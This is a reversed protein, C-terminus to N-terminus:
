ISVLRFFDTMYKYLDRFPLTGTHYRCCGCEEYEWFYQDHTNDVAVDYRYGCRKCVAFPKRTEDKTSVPKPPVNETDHGTLDVLKPPVNEADDGTLDIIGASQAAIASTTDPKTVMVDMWSPSQAKSASTTIEVATAVLNPLKRFEQWKDDVTEANKIAKINASIPHFVRTGVTTTTDLVEHRGTKCGAEGQRAACCSWHM